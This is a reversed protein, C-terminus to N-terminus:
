TKSIYHLISSNQNSFTNLSLRMIDEPSVAFYKKNQSNLLHADGLNEYYALNMAKSLVNIDSYAHSVEIKNKVKQLENTDIIKTKLGEIVELMETEANEISQNKALRGSVVIIGPDTSGTIWANVKSFIKKEKLLKQYLRASNSSGLIDSILDIGYYDNSLRDVTHFAIYIEDYPVNREVRLIRNEKQPPEVPLSKQAKKSPLIDGFWKDALMFVDDPNIDGAVSLIANDPRYFKNYFDKVDSMQTAEVHDVTKGITSWQYPHVKYTLDRLLMMVDGYPQNLYSQKFEEIVVNKQTQLKEESFAPQFMRDSELHFATEINKVPLTLYYNTIDNSTFANNEGGANQLEVDFEKVNASGEFMLHEFLHAIGTLNPNEHKAGVNYLLNFAAIPTSKDQHALVKLGNKLVYKEFKVM